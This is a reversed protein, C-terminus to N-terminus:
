KNFSWRIVEKKGCVKRIGGYSKVQPSGSLDLCGADRCVTRVGPVGVPVSLFDSRLQYPKMEPLRLSIYFASPLLLFIAGLKKAFSVLAPFLEFADEPSDEGRCLWERLGDM